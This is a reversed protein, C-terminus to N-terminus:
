GWFGKLTDCMAELFFKELFNEMIFDPNKKGYLYKGNYGRYQCINEVIHGLYFYVGGKGKQSIKFHGYFFKKGSIKSNFNPFSFFGM